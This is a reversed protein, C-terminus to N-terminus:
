NKRSTNESDDAELFDLMDTNKSNEDESSVEIHVIKDKRVVQNLQHPTHGLYFYDDDEDVLYGYTVLPLTGTKTKLNHGVMVCLYENQLKDFIKSTDQTTLTMKKKGKTTKNTVTRSKSTKVAM